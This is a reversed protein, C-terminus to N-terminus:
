RNSMKTPLPARQQHFRSVSSGLAMATSGEPPCISSKSNLHTGAQGPRKSRDHDKKLDSYYATM